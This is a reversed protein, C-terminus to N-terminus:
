RTPSFNLEISAEVFTLAAECERPILDVLLATRDATL